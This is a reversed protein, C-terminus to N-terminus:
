AAALLPQNFDIHDPPKRGLSSHPRRRNYLTLYRGLSARAESVSNYARLYVKQYKDEGGKPHGLAV